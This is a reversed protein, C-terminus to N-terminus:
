EQQHHASKRLRLQSSSARALGSQEAAFVDVGPREPEETATAALSLSGAQGGTALSMGSGATVIGAATGSHVPVGDLQVAAVHPQHRAAAPAASTGAAPQLEQQEARGEPQRRRKHARLGWKSVKRASGAEQGGAAAAAAARSAAQVQESIFADLMTELQRFRELNMGEGVDWDVADQQQQQWEEADGGAVQAAALNGHMASVHMGTATQGAQESSSSGAAAQRSHQAQQQQQQELLQRM